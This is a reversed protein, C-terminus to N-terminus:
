AREYVENKLTQTEMIEILKKKARALQSRSTSPTIKLIESIEDHDYGELLNLSFIVRYGDPLLTAAEQIKTIVANEDKENVMYEVDVPVTNLPEIEYVLQHKSKKRLYDLSMNIVIRRLWAGFSVEGKYLDIKSFASLFAEQMIDEADASNNLIRLSTNYMAKYYLKYIKYQATSDKKKCLQILDNHIETYQNM